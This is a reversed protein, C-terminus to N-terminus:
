KEEKKSTTGKCWEKMERDTETAEQEDGSVLECWDDIEEDATEGPEEEKKKIQKPENSPTPM